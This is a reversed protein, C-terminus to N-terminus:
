RNGSRKGSTRDGAGSQKRLSGVTRRTRPGDYNSRQNELAEEARAAEKRAQPDRQVAPDQSPSSKRAM